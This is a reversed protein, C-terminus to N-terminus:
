SFVRSGPDSGTRLPTRSSLSCCLCVGGEEPGQAPPLSPLNFSGTAHFQLGQTPALQGSPEQLTGELSLKLGTTKFDTLRLSTGLRYTRDAGGAADTVVVAVIYQNDAYTSPQLVDTVSGRSVTVDDADFGSTNSIGDFTVLLFYRGSLGLTPLVQSSQSSEFLQIRTATAQGSAVGSWALLLIAVAVSVWVNRCLGHRFRARPREAARELGCDNRATAHSVSAGPLFPAIPPRSLEAAATRDAVWSQGDTNERKLSQAM